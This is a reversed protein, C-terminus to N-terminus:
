GIRIFTIALLALLIVAGGALAEVPLGIQSSAVSATARRKPSTM